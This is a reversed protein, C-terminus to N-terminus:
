LSRLWEQPNMRSKERWIEFHLLPDDGSVRGLPDGGGLTQGRSVDVVDLNSYVSYYKGHRLIVINKYGPIFSTSVVKGSFIARVARDGQIRIDVGNNVIKVSPLKPHPQTGFYKVIRGRSVPWPLRGRNEQFNASLRIAAAEAEAGTESKEARSDEAALEARIVEEIARNLRRHAEQQQSLQGALRKEDQRLSRLLQNKTKLEGALMRQQNQYDQLLQQKDAKQQVLANMKNALTQQTQEIVEAQRRRYKEYQRIYQWRRFAENFSDSSFLFLLFSSSMKHRYATRLTQAYEDKLRALDADLAEVAINAREISNTMYTIEQDLTLMLQERNRVQNQLTLYRALANKRDKQTTALERNTREIEELLAKRRKELQTRSQSWAPTSGLLLFFSLLLTLANAHV